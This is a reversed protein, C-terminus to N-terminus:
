GHRTTTITINWSCRFYYLVPYLGQVTNMVNKKITSLWAALYIIVVYKAFEVPQFSLPGLSLWRKAGGHAFGIHPVFVLVLLIIGLGYLWMSYEKLHEYPTRLAVM